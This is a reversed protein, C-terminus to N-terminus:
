RAKEFKIYYVGNSKRETPTAGYRLEGFKKLWSNFTRQTLWKRLDPFEQIVRDYLKKKDFEFEHLECLPNIFGAQESYGPWPLGTEKLSRALDDMFDLFDPHTHDTLKREGLHIAAPEILGYQHFLQACFCMFNDFRNFEKEDWDRRKGNREPFWCGYHQGPSLHEGFFTSVEFEVIRDRQSAGQINLTKNTSIIMKSYQRFTPMYLKKVIYGETIDNFVDEFDFKYRGRHKVDNLHLVQTGIDADQYKTISTADFDKGNIECYSRVNGIMKSILTKGTRGESNESITSDTFLIAKLKYEYFDHILYGIISCLAKFREANEGAIKWCFDAFMGMEAVEVGGSIDVPAFKRDLMQHEWVSGNMEDYSRLKWGDKTVEVFGNQYYLYTADKTDTNILIPEETRLRAFLDKSAMTRMQDYFANILSLADTHEVKAADFDFQHKIFDEVFDIIEERTVSKIVNDRLQVFTYENSNNPGVANTQFRSYGFHKLLQTFKYKDFKIRDLFINGQKDQRTIEDFFRFARPDGDLKPIVNKKGKQKKARKIKKETAAQAEAIFMELTKPVLNHAKCIKKVYDDRLVAETKPILALTQALERVRDNRLIPNETKALLKDAKWVVGDQQYRTIFDNISTVDLIPM